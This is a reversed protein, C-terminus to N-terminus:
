CYLRSILHPIHAILDAYLGDDIDHIYTYTIKRALYYTRRENKIVPITLYIRVFKTNLKILFM